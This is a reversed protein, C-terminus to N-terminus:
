QVNVSLCTVTRLIGNINHIRSTVLEGVANLDGAELVAIVDHPGTVRDVAQMGPVSKLAEAVEIGKGVATDILIYARTAM